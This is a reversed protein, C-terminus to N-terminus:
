IAVDGPRMALRTALVSAEYEFTLTKKHTHTHELLAVLGLSVFM